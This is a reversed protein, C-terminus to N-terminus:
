KRSIPKLFSQCKLIVLKQTKITRILSSVFPPATRSDHKSLSHDAKDEKSKLDRKVFPEAFSFIPHSAEAFKQTMNGAIRDRAGSPKDSSACYWVREEGFGCFCWHGLKLQKAYETVETANELFTREYDKTWWEIDNFMSRFMLRGRLDCPETSGLFTRIERKIQITAHGSFINRRFQLPRGTVDNKDQIDVLGM